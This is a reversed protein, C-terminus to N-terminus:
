KEPSKPNRKLKELAFYTILRLHWPTLTECSLSCLAVCSVSQFWIILDFKPFFKNFEVTQALEYEDLTAQSKLHFCVVCMSRTVSCLLCGAARQFGWWGMQGWALPPLKAKGWSAFRRNWPLLSLLIQVLSIFGVSLIVVWARWYM